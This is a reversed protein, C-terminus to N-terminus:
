FGWYRDRARWLLIALLAGAVILAGGIMPQTGVMSRLHCWEAYRSGLCAQLALAPNGALGVGFALYGAMVLAYLSCVVGLTAIVRFRREPMTELPAIIGVFAALLAAPVSLILGPTLM